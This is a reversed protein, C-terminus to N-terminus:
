KKKADLEKQKEVGLEKNIQEALTDMEKKRFTLAEVQDQSNAEVLADDYKDNLKNLTDLDRQLMEARTIDPNPNVLAVVYTNAIVTVNKHGWANQADVTASNYAYYVAFNRKGAIIYSFTVQLNEETSSSSAALSLLGKVLSGVDQASQVALDPSDNGAGIKIADVATKITSDIIKDLAALSFDESFKSYSISNSPLLQIIGKTNKNIYAMGKAVDNNLRKEADAIAKKVADLAAQNDALAAQINPAGM